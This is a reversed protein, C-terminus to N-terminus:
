DEIYECAEAHAVIYVGGDSETQYGDVTVHMHEEPSGSGTVTNGFQGPATTTLGAQSGVYVHVSGAGGSSNTVFWNEAMYFDVAWNGDKDLHVWLDGAYKGKSLDNRGAGAWLKIPFYTGPQDYFPGMIWGWQEKALGWDIFTQDGYGYATECQFDGGCNIEVPMMAAYAWNGRPREGEPGLLIYDGDGYRAWAGEERGSATEMVDAHAVIILTEDCLDTIGEPLEIEDLPITFTKDTLSVGGAKYPFQGPKPNGCLYPDKPKTMPLGEVACNNEDGDDVGVWLHM